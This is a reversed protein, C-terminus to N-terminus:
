SLCQSLAVYWDHADLQGVVCLIYLQAHNVFRCSESMHTDHTIVCASMRTQWGAHIGTNILRRNPLCVDTVM